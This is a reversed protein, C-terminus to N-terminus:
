FKLDKHTRSPMSLDIWATSFSFGAAGRLDVMKGNGLNCRRKRQGFYRLTELILRVLHWFKFSERRTKCDDQIPLTDPMHRDVQCRDLVSDLGVYCLIAHLRGVCERVLVSSHGVYRSGLGFTFRYGNTAYYRCIFACLFEPFYRKVLTAGYFPVKLLKGCSFWINVNLYGYRDDEDCIIDWIWREMESIPDSVIHGGNQTRCKTIYNRHFSIYNSLFKVPIQECPHLSCYAQM